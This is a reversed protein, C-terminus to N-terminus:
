REALRNLKPSSSDGARSSKHALSFLRQLTTAQATSTGYFRSLLVCGRCSTLLFTIEPFDEDDYLLHPHKGTGIERPNHSQEDEADGPKNNM